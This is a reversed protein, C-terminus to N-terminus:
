TEQVYSLYRVIGHRTFGDPDRMLTTTDYRLYVLTIPASNVSTLTLTARDLVRAIHDIIGEVQAYGAPAGAAGDRSFIHLTLAGMRGRKDFTDNITEVGDGLVVYPFLQNEPLDDFVGTILAMLATDGTLATYMATQLAALATTLAM